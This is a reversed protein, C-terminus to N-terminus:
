HARESSRRPTDVAADEMEQAQEFNQNSQRGADGTMSYGMIVGIIIGAGLIFGVWKLWKM